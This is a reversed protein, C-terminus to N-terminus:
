EDEDVIVITKAWLDGIRQNNPTNNICIIAPIGFPIFDIIDVIHRQLSEIFGIRTNDINTVKLGMILHGLTASFLSEVVILFVFWFVFPILASLGTVTYGGEDNQEGFKYVYIIYFIIIITYDILSALIRSGLKAKTRTEM